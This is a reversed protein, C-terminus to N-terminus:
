FRVNCGVSARFANLNLGTGIGFAQHVRYGMAIELDLQSAGKPQRPHQTQGSIMSTGIRVGVKTDLGAKTGFILSPYVSDYRPLTKESFQVLGAAVSVFPERSRNGFLLSGGVTVPVIQIENRGDNAQLRGTGASTDISFHKHFRYSLSLTPFMKGSKNYISAIAEESWKEASIGVGVRIEQADFGTPEEQAYGTNPIMMAVSGVLSMFVISFGNKTKSMM